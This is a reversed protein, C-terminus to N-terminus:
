RRDKISYAVLALIGWIMFLFVTVIGFLTLREPYQPTEALTPEVYAALYRSQHQAEALAADHATLASLYTKEAFERDVSLAEYENILTAYAGDGDGSGVGLKKREEAIRSEIVAIRRAAQDARPDNERANEKLLDSEIIAAALQQHLNNLLGMQGQIDANPDVIQARNRFETVAQRAHKLREVSAALERKAYKTADDRAVASLQNIMRSSEELIAKAIDQADQAAFATVRIEILGTSAEYYIKVMRSWYSVLDEISGDAQFAFVPDNDPKSYIQRLDLRQNVLEVMKQSQIFEYLIDTDSSSGSSVGTIGGLFDMASSAEEARVSFGITSAYQDAARQELYWLTVASPLVVMLLFSIILGLHRGRM